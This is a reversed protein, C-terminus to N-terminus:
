KKATKKPKKKEKQMNRGKAMREGGRLPNERCQLRRRWEPLLPRGPTGITEGKVAGGAIRRPTREV